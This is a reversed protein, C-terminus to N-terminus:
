LEGAQLRADLEAVRAQIDEVDVSTVALELVSRAATVRASAPATPDGMVARLTEVAEACATALQGTAQSVVLRRAEQYARQFTADNLWRRLTSESVGAQEAALRLTPTALLAAIAQEWKRALKEGNGTM